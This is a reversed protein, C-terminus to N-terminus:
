GLGCERRLEDEGMAFTAVGYASLDQLFETRSIGAIEAAAGSSIRGMEYLKMAAATRLERGPDNDIEQLTRATADDLEIVIRTM